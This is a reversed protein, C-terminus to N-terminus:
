NVASTLSSCHLFVVTVNQIGSHLVCKHAWINQVDIITKTKCAFCFTASAELIKVAGGTMEKSPDKPECTLVIRAERRRWSRASTNLHDAMQTLYTCLKIHRRLPLVCGQNENFAGTCLSPTMLHSRLVRNKKWYSIGCVCVCVCVRVCRRVCACVCVALSVTKSLLLSEM